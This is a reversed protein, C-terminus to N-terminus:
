GGGRMPGQIDQREPQWYGYGRVVGGGIGERHPNDNFCSSAGEFQRSDARCNVPSIVAQTFELLQRM